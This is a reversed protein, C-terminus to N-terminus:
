PAGLEAALQRVNEEDSELALALVAVTDGHQKPGEGLWGLTGRCPPCWTAWFEVLVVRGELESRAIPKGSLDTLSFTPLVAAEGGSAAPAVLARAEASRGALVLDIVRRIDTRLREHAAASKLPAYRGGEKAGEGAGY